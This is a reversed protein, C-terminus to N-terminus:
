MITGNARTASAPQQNKMRSRCAGCGTRKSQVPKRM